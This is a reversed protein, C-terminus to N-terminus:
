GVFLCKALTTCMTPSGIESKKFYPFLHFFLPETRRDQLIKSRFAMTTSSYTLTASLMLLNEKLTCKKALRLLGFSNMGGDLSVCCKKLTGYKLAPPSSAASIGAGATKTTEARTAHEKIQYAHIDCELPHEDRRAGCPFLFISAENKGRTQVNGGSYGM